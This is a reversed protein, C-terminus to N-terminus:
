VDAQPSHDTIKAQQETESPVISRGCKITGTISVPLCCGPPARTGTQECSWCLQVDKGHGTFRSGQGKTTRLWHSPAVPGVDRPDLM